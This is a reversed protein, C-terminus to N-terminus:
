TSDRRPQGEQDLRGALHPRDDRQRRAARARARRPHRRLPAPELTLGEFFPPNRIYTSDPTGRSATAPRCRRARALARRGRLRRAYSSASCTPAAGADLMTEQVERERRGSTACSSRSATAHGTGLPENTLDIDMTGPWRTPSSSRRRRSTTRACTAAPHARRLQPQRSLVSAVVLDDSTSRRRSRGGAAPRQQRHVDHLRLGVLNFGLQTSTRRAPGREDPVRHRGEVRARPSTKVWPKSQLGREVAKKALLGAGIMVSPNSTNTCSTIAAIVVRRPRTPRSRRGVPRITRGRAARRAGRRAAPADPRRRRQHRRDSAPVVGGVSRRGDDSTPVHERLADRFRAQAETLPVRDQPRKPGPSARSSTPSISSSRTRTPRSRRHERRAFLGQAKAYAEVLEVGSRRAAPSGCTARADRRRDPLDRM